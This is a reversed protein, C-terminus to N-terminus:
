YPVARAGDDDSPLEQWMFNLPPLLILNLTGISVTNVNDSSVM